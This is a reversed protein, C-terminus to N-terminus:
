QGLGTHYDIESSNADKSHMNMGASFLPTMAALIFLYISQTVSIIAQQQINTVTHIYIYYIYICYIFLYIYINIYTVRRDVFTPV